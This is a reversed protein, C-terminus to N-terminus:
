PECTANMSKNNLVSRCRNNTYDQSTIIDQKRPGINDYYFVSNNINRRITNFKLKRLTTICRGTNFLNM